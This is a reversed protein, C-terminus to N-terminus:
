TSGEKPDDRALAPEAPTPEMIEIDIHEVDATCKECEDMSVHKYHRLVCPCTCSTLKEGRFKFIRVCIPRKGAGLKKEIKKVRSKM